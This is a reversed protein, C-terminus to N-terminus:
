GEYIKELFLNVKEAAKGDGYPNEKKSISKYYKEDQILLMVEEYIKEISNGVLKATGHDIAEPRESTDRMVLVPKGFSPAEEQIGGSDTLIVKSRKLLYIFNLYDQPEILHIKHNNGLIDYVPKFINPNHHVPYVIEINNNELAIKELARCIYSIGNGFNERRHATVLILKKEKDLFSFKKELSEKINLNKEILLDSYILADIVTNGTVCIKEKSIGEKLLNNQAIKTPAFNFKAIKSVLQRNVEEPWPSYINNTRLGAEIHGVDIKKYYAALATSFTTTTDGHVLVLDASFDNFVESMKKIVNATLSELSQNKTMIDLDYDPKISFVELAQDLMERHQATVCFKTVFKKNKSLALYIPAMKIAEPRTGAVILIKKM